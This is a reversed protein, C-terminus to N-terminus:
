DSLSMGDVTREQWEHIWDYLYERYEEGDDTFWEEEEDWLERLQPDEEMRERIIEESDMDCGDFNGDKNYAQVGIFNPMEDEYTLIGVVEPNNGEAIVKILWEAFETPASWASYMAFAYEDMDTAYAWKAGVNDCMWTIDIDSLDEVFAYGLHCEYDDGRRSEMRKIVENLKEKGSENLYMFRLYSNVHNAM